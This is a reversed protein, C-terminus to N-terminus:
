PGPNGHPAVSSADGPTLGNTDLVDDMFGPVLPPVVHSAEDAPADPAAVASKSPPPMPALADPLQLAPPPEEAPGAGIVEDSVPVPVVDATPRTPM